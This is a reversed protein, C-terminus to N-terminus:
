VSTNSAVREYSPIEISAITGMIPRATISLKAKDGFQARLHESINSLGVGGVIHNGDRIGVGDDLVSVRICDTATAQAIIKITGVGPKSELGHKIANEVLSLLLFAPFEKERLSADVEFTYQLRPGIRVQMLALYSACIDLQQGLSSGIGAQHERLKPITARLHDVLADLTVIAHDPNQTILARLSSLTNFLFHPEIQAQLVGLRLDSQQKELQMSDLERQHQSKLLRTQESFYARLALGGGISGYIAVLFIINIWRLRPNKQAIFKAQDKKASNEELNSHSSSASKSSLLTQKQLYPQTSREIYASSWQDSFYSLLIGLLIAVVVASRERKIPLKQYRVWTALSPGAGAMVMFGLFFHVAVLLGLDIRNSVFWIGLWVPLAFLGIIIAFLFSRKKLWPLSFVPYNRYAAVKWASSVVVDDPLVQSLQFDNKIKM